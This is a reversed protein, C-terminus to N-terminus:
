QPGAAPYIDHGPDLHLISGALMNAFNFDIRFLNLAQKWKATTKKRYNLRCASNHDTDGSLDWEIGISHITSYSRLEGTDVAFLCNAPSLFSVILLLLCVFVSKKM